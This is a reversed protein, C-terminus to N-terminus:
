SQDRPNDAEVRLPSNLLEIGSDAFHVSVKDGPQLKQSPSALFGVFHHILSNERQVDDRPLSPIIYQIFIGNIRLELRPNSQDAKSFAWGAIESLTVREIRGRQEALNRVERRYLEPSAKIVALCQSRQKQDLNLGLFNDLGDILSGPSLLAKEYSVLLAPLRSSSIQKILRHSEKQIRMLEHLLADGRSISRRGAIALSDRFIVVLVPDRLLKLFKAQLVLHSPLKLGWQDHRSNREKILRLLEGRQNCRLFQTLVQDEYTGIALENGIPVGATQLTQALMSTGSRGLGTIVVTSGTHPQKDPWHLEWFGTNNHDEANGLMEVISPQQAINGSLMHKQEM